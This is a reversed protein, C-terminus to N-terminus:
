INMRRNIEELSIAPNVASKAEMAMTSAAMSFSVTEAMTFDNVFGYIAGASFADGAGTASGDEPIGGIPRVLGSDKGDTYYVGGSSLSIFVRKVGKEIFAEGAKKLAEPDKIEMDLLVEAEARNPKITHFHGILNKARVAKATSVPDLFLPKEGLKEVAYALSEERLNTDLVVVKADKLGLAARDILEESIKELADMNSLALEMDGVIDLISIYIATSEEKSMEVRSVDMGIEELERLALRGMLDDGVVSIFSTGVKMRVLNEAINRGVGGFTISITGPNSDAHVLMGFPKGEIDATVGGIVIVESM